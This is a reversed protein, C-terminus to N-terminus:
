RASGAVVRRPDLDCAGGGRHVRDIRDQDLHWAALELAAGQHAQDRLLVDGLRDHEGVALAVDGAEVAEQLAHAQVGAVDVAVELLHMALRREVRELGALDVEQHGGVHGRAAEVDGVHRDHDIEVHRVVGVVIDVADAAGAAGALAAAGEGEGRGLFALRHGRDLPQDALRDAPELQVAGLRPSGLGGGRRALAGRGGARAPVLDAAASRLAARAATPPLRRGLRAAAAACRGAGGAAGLRAGAPPVTARRVAPTGRGLGLRRLRRDDGEALVDRAEQKRGAGTAAGAM